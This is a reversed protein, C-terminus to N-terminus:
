PFELKNKIMEVVAHYFEIGQYSFLSLATLFFFGITILRIWIM